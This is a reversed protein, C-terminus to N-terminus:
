ALIKRNGLVSRLANESYRELPRGQFQVVFLEVKDGHTQGERTGRNARAFDILQDSTIKENWELVIANGDPYRKCPLAEM